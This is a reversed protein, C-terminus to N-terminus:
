EAPSTRLAATLSIESAEDGFFRVRARGAVKAMYMAEDAKKVASAVTERTADEIFAIGISAEIRFLTEVLELPEAFRRQIKKAIADVAARDAVNEAVIAFEDGGLRCVVDGSRVAAQMRRATEKIYEDGVDHGFKDNIPKFHDLDIYFVGLKGRNTQARELALQVAEFFLRRNGLGTLTDYNALQGLRMMASKLRDNDINFKDLVANYFVAIRAAETEPEVDVRAKFDGQRAQRDMQVILDLLSSNAAHEAVNLGIREDNASVRLPKFHNVLRLLLYSVSFAYIGVAGVGILQSLFQESRSVGPGWSGDPALVVALTGWIGAFLHVPVAGVADDIEIRELYIAGYVCIVGGIAGVLMAIPVPFLNAGATVAVLGALVGNMSKDVAPVRFIAWTTAMAALGGCAGGLATNIVILPTKDVLAFTSGGNFGFWGFWLLFVGLTAITLDHGDIPRGNPGFRGIRPGIVLLAALSVWGGVSHVVTSGAFDIFGLKGLWGSATQTAAGAWVWHGVIPYILTSTIAATICYSSFRMREAVAGSVITTATGCFVMQFFFFALLSGSTTTLALTPDSGIWGGITPGFMLGFGVTAYLASSVTFDSLNKFAVNISNKSRVMGAEIAAFGAQMMCVLIACLL